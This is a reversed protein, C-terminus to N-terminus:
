AEGIITNVQQCLEVEIDSIPSKISFTMMEVYAQMLAIIPPTFRKDEKLGAEDLAVLFKVCAELIKLRINSLGDGPDMSHAKDFLKNLTKIDISMM